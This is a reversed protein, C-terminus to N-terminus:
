CSPSYSPRVVIKFVPNDDLPEPLSSRLEPRGDRTYVKARHNIHDVSMPQGGGCCVRMSITYPLQCLNM